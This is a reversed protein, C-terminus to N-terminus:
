PTAGTLAHCTLPGIVPISHDRPAQYTFDVECLSPESEIQLHNVAQLGSIFALGDYGVVTEAGSELHHVRTGPPIPKGATDRLIVSAAVEHGMPFRALVGSQAQPVLELSTTDVRTDMPLNMSDIAVQNSQYANLDPILLHGSSDTKGIVRNQDLVPVGAVGDTSVMAFGDYIHRAPQLSGDM